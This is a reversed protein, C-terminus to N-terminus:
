FLFGFCNQMHLFFKRCFLELRKDAFFESPDDAPAVLSLILSVVAATILIILTVDQLAEWMLELLSKSPAAPISNEGFHEKREAIESPEGSLGNHEDTKLRQILGPYGGFKQEVAGVAEDGRLRMLATLEEPSVDFPM